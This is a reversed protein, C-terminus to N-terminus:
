LANFVVVLLLINLLIMSELDNKNLQLPETGQNSNDQINPDINKKPESAQTPEM